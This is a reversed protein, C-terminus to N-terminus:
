LRKTRNPLVQEYFEGQEKQQIKEKIRKLWTGSLIVKTPFEMKIGEYSVEIPQVKKYIESTMLKGGNEEILSKLVELIPRNNKAMYEAKCKPCIHVKRPLMDPKQEFTYEPHKNCKFKLPMTNGKYETSVCVCDHNAAFYNASCIGLSLSPDIWEEPIHNFKSEHNCEPCWSGANVISYYTATWTPHNPNSCKFELKSSNLKMETSIVSGGKAKACQKVENFRALRKANTTRETITKWKLNHPRVYEETPCPVCM